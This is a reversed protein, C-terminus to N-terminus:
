HAIPTPGKPGVNHSKVGAAKAPSSNNNSKEFEPEVPAL